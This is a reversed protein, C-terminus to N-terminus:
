SDLRENKVGANRQPAPRGWLRRRRWHLSQEPVPCFGLERPWIMPIPARRPEGRSSDTRSASKSTKALAIVSFTAASATALAALSM